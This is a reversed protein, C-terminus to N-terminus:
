PIEVNFAVSDTGALGNVVLDVNWWGPRTFLVDNLAYRGGGIYTATAQRSSGEDTMPMWTRVTVHAHALRRHNRGTLRVIWQQAAGVNLLSTSVVEARYLRSHSPRLAFDVVVGPPISQETNATSRITYAAGSAGLMAIIGLVYFPRSWSAAFARRAGRDVAIPIDATHTFM